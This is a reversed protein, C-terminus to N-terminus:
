QRGCICSDSSTSKPTNCVRFSLRNASRVSWVGRRPRISGSVGKHYASWAVLCWASHSGGQLHSAPETVSLLGMQDECSHSSSVLRSDKRRPFEDRIHSRGLSITRTGLALHNTPGIQM